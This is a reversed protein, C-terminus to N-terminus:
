LRPRGRGFLWRGLVVAAGMALVLVVSSPEPVTTIQVHMNDVGIQVDLGETSYQGTFAYGFQFPQSFDPHGASGDVASFDGARLGTDGIVQWTSGTGTSGGATEALFPKDQVIALTVRLESTGDVVQPLVDVDFDISTAAGGRSPNFVFDTDLPYAITATELASSNPASFALLTGPSPHGVIDSARGDLTLQGGTDEIVQSVAGINVHPKSRDFNEKAM